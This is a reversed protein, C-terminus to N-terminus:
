PTIGRAAIECRLSAALEDRTVGRDCLDMVYYRAMEHGAQKEALEGDFGNPGHSIKEDELVGWEYDDRQEIELALSLASLTHYRRVTWSFYSLGHAFAVAYTSRDARAPIVPKPWPDYTTLNM